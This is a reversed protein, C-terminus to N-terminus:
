NTGALSVYHVPNALVHIVQQTSVGAPYDDSYASLTLAYDGPAPWSHSVGLLQNTVITGDGFDWHNSTYPGAIEGTFRLVAGTISGSYSEVIGPVLAVPAPLQYEYAGLDVFPGVLRARGDLDAAGVPSPNGANICPSGAALHFDGAAPDAFHPGFTFNGLGNAPLPATCCYNLTMEFAFGLDYNVNTPAHNGTVVCNSASLFSQAAAGVSSLGGGARSASNGFITCNNLSARGGGPASAAGGAQAANGVILCNNLEGSVASRIAAYYGGGANQAINNSLICGSLTGSAAGAGFLASNGVLVCNSVVSSPSLSRVGGGLGVDTGSGAQTAGNTLTFGILAAGNTLYVCRVATPGNTIGPTQSGKIIAAAAGNVSQVTIAKTVAVRNPTTDGPVIRTGTQYIGNTVWVIDGANAADVATQINTAATSWSGYPPQPNPCNLDVFLDSASVKLPFSSVLSVALLYACLRMIYAIMGKRMQIDSSRGLGAGQKLNESSQIVPYGFQLPSAAGSNRRRRPESLARKQINSTPPKPRTRTEGSALM